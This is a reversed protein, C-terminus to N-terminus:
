FLEINESLAKSIARRLKPSTIVKTKEVKNYALLTNRANDAHFKKNLFIVPKDYRPILHWHLHSNHIYSETNSILLVTNYNTNNSLKSICKTYKKYISLFESIEVGSLNSINIKHNKLILLCRGFYFQRFHLYLIWYKFEHVFDCDQNKFSQFCSCSLRSNLM